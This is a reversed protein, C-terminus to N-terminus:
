EPTRVTGTVKIMWNVKSRDACWRGPYLKVMDV